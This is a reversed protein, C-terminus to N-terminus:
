VYNTHPTPFSIWKILTGVVVLANRERGERKGIGPREPGEEDREGPGGRDGQCNAGGASDRRWRMAGGRGTAWGKRRLLPTPRAGHHPAVTPTHSRLFFFITRDMRIEFLLFRYLNESLSPRFMAHRKQQEGIERRRLFVLWELFKPCNLLFTFQGYKGM